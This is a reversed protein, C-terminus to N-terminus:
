TEEHPPRLTAMPPTCPPREPPCPRCGGSILCPACSSSHHLLAVAHARVQKNQESSLQDPENGLDRLIGTIPNDSSSVIEAHHRYLIRHVLYLSNLEFARTPTRSETSEMYMTVRRQDELEPVDTLNSYFQKMLETSVKVKASIDAMWPEASDNFKRLCGVAKLSTAIRLLNRKMAATPRSSASCLDFAEPQIIAPCLYSTFVFNAVGAMKEEDTSKPFRDQAMEYVKKALARVGYPLQNRCAIVRTLFIEVLEVLIRVRPSIIDRVERFQWAEAASLKEPLDEGIKHRLTQYATQYVRAPDIELDLSKRSLVTSLPKFLADKLAETNPGRRTYAAMLKTVYNVSGLITTPDTVSSMDESTAHMILSLIYYEDRAKYHNSYIRDCIVAVLRNTEDAESKGLAVEEQETRKLMVSLNAPEEYLISLMREYLQKSFGSSKVGPMLERREYGYHKCLTEHVMKHNALVLQVKSEIDLCSSELEENIRVQEDLQTKLTDIQRQEQEIVETVNERQSKVLQQLVDLSPKIARGAMAVAMVTSITSADDQETNALEERGMAGGDGGTASDAGRRQAEDAQQARMALTSSDDLVKQATAADIDTGHLKRMMEPTLLRSPEDGGANSSAHMLSASSLAIVEAPVDQEDTSGTGLRSNAGNGWTYVKAKGAQDRSVAGSHNAGCAVKEVQQNELDMIPSPSLRPELGGVGLQGYHGAGWAFVSSKDKLAAISHAEGAAICGIEKGQLGLIPTPTKRNELDGHGLQGREGIGWTYLDGTETLVMTHFSGCAMQKVHKRKLTKIETPVLRNQDDSLGLKGKFGSGWVLVEYSHCLAISHAYGCAVATVKKADLAVPRPTSEDEPEGHGLKGFSGSGWTYLGGESTVVASHEQWLRRVHADLAHSGHPEASAAACLHSPM